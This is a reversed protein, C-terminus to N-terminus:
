CHNQAVRSEGSIGKAALIYSSVKQCGPSGPVPSSLSGETVINLTPQRSLLYELVPSVLNYSFFNTETKIFVSFLLQPKFLTYMYMIFIILVCYLM